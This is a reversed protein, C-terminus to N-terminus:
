RSPFVSDSMTVPCRDTIVSQVTRLWPPVLLQIVVPWPELRLFQETVPLVAALANATPSPDVTRSHLAAFLVTVYPKIMPAPEVTLFQAAEALVCLVLMEAPNVTSLPDTNSPQLEEKLVDLAVAVLLVPIPNSKVENPIVMSFQVAFDFRPSPM